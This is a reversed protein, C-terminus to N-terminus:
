GRTFADTLRCGVASPVLQRDVTDRTRSDQEISRVHVCCGRAAGERSIHSEDRVDGGRGGPGVTRMCCAHM